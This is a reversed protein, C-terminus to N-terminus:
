RGPRPAARGLQREALEVRAAHSATRMPRRAGMCAEGPGAGCAPCAFQRVVQRSWQRYSLGADQRVQDGPTATVEDDAEAHATEGVEYMARLIGQGQQYVEEYTRALQLVSETIGELEAEDGSDAALTAFRRALERYCTALDDASRAAERLMRAFAQAEDEPPDGHANYTM